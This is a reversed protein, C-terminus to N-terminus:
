RRLQYQSPPHFNSRQNSHQQQPRQLQHYHAPQYFNYFNSHDPICENLNNHTFKPSQYYNLRHENLIKNNSHFGKNNNNNFFPKNTQNNKNIRNSSVTSYNNNKTSYSNIFRSDTSNNNNTFTHNNSFRVFNNNSKNNNKNNNKVGNKIIPKKKINNTQTSSTDSSSSITTSSSNSSNNLSNPASHSATIKIQKQKKNKSKLRETNLINKYTIAKQVSKDFDSKLKQETKNYIEDRISSTISNDKTFKDMHSEIKNIDSQLETIQKPIFKLDYDLLMKQMQLILEDFGKIYEPNTYNPKPFRNAFYAKPFNNLQTHKELIKKSNQYRLEKEIRFSLIQKLKDLGYSAYPDSATTSLSNLKNEFSELKSAFNNLTQTLNHLTSDFTSNNSSFRDRSSSNNLQFILQSLPSEDLDDQNLFKSKANNILTNLVSENASNLQKSIIRKNKLMYDRIYLFISNTINNNDIKELLSLLIDDMNDKTLVNFNNASLTSLNTNITEFATSTNSGNRFGNISSGDYIKHNNNFISLIHNLWIDIATILDM